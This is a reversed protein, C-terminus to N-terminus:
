QFVNKYSGSTGQEPTDCLGKSHFDGLHDGSVLISQGLGRFHLHIKLLSLNIRVSTSRSTTTWHWIIRAQWLASPANVRRHYWCCRNPKQSGASYLKQLPRPVGPSIMEQIQWSWRQWNTDSQRAEPDHTHHVESIERGYRTKEYIKLNHAFREVEHIQTALFSNKCHSFVM